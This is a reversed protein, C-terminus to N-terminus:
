FWEPEDVTLWDVFAQEIAALQEPPQAAAREETTLDLGSFLPVFPELAANMAAALPERAEAWSELDVVGLSRDPLRAEFTTRTPVVPPPVDGLARLRQEAFSRIADAGVAEDFVPAAASRGQSRQVVLYPTDALSGLTAAHTDNGVVGILPVGAAWARGHSESILEDGVRIRLRPIYTHPIFGDLGGRAHYGVQLMAAIDHEPLDFVNWTELRAGAPLEDQRVNVPNGSGHNDLVVVESAGGALLGEAAAISDAGRGTRNFAFAGLWAAMFWRTKKTAFYDAAAAATM